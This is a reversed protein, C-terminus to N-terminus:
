RELPAPSSTFLAPPLFAPQTKSRIFLQSRAIRERQGVAFIAACGFERNGGIAWLCRNARLLRSQTSHNGLIQPFLRSREQESIPFAREGDVEIQRKNQNVETRRNLFEGRKRRQLEELLEEIMGDATDTEVSRAKGNQLAQTYAQLYAECLDKAEVWSVNLAYSAVYVSTLFRALEWTCPALAAEDFDNIDFYVQRDDGKFSGFNELHLDGCAWVAPAANLDVASWDEYFLHCSGRFFAFCDTRMKQYKLHLRDPNRGQNFQQIREIVNRNM